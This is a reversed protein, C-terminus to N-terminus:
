RTEITIGRGGLNVDIGSRNQDKYLWYGGVGLVIGFIGVLIITSNKNM